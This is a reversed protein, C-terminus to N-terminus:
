ETSSASPDKLFALIVQLASHTLASRADSMFGHPGGRAVFLRTALRANDRASKMAEAQTLPAMADRDGHVLLTPAPFDAHSLPSRARWVRPDRSRLLRRRLWGARAGSLWSFDYLGYLSVIASPEQRARGLALWMLAAGASIGFTAIRAPDLDFRESQASWWAIADEIDDVGEELRGGRFVLRYDPVAVAFGAEVLQTALYRTPKMGRSGILFGGGHILVVSPHPGQGEPVYVDVRPPIGPRHAERYRLGANTPATTPVGLPAALLWLAKLIGQPRQPDRSM